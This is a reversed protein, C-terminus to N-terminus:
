SSGIINKTKIKKIMTKVLTTLFNFNKTKLRFNLLALLIDPFLRMQVGQRVNPNLLLFFSYPLSISMIKKLTM